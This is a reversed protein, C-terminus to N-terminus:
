KFAFLTNKDTMSNASLLGIYLIGDGIIMSINMNTNSTPKDWIAQNNKENVASILHDTATYLVGKSDIVPQCFFNGGSKLEWDVNGNTTSIAKKGFGGLIFLRETNACIYQLCFSNCENSPIEYNWNPAGTTPNLAQIHVKGGNDSPILLSKFDNPFCPPVSTAKGIVPKVWKPTVPNSTSLIDFAYINNDSSVAYIISGPLMTLSQIAGNAKFTWNTKKLSYDLSYLTGDSSGVYVNGGFLLPPTTITGSPLPFQWLLLGDRVEYLKNDDCGFFVTYNEDMSLSTVVNGNAPYTWKITPTLTNAQNLAEVKNNGLVYYLISSQDIILSSIRENKPNSWLLTGQMGGTNSFSNNYINGKESLWKSSVSCGSLISLSVVAFFLFIFFSSKQLTIQNSQKTTSIKKFQTM